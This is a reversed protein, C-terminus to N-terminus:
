GFLAFIKLSSDLYKLTNFCATPGLAMAVNNEAYRINCRSDDTCILINKTQKYNELHYPLSSLPFTITIGM